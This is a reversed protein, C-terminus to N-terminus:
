HVVVSGRRDGHRQRELSKGAEEEEEAAEAALRLALEAEVDGGTPRTKSHSKV